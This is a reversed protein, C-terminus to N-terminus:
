VENVNKKLFNYKLLKHKKKYKKVEAMTHHM